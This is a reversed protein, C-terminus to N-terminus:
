RQVALREALADTHAQWYATHEATGVEYPNRLLDTTDAAILNATRQEEVLALTAHANAAAIVTPADEYAMFEILEANELGTPRVLGLLRRAENAHETATSPRTTTTM